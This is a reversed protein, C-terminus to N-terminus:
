MCIQNACLARSLNKGSSQATQGGTGSMIALLFESYNMIRVQAHAHSYWQVTTAELGGVVFALGMWWYGEGAVIPEPVILARNYPM